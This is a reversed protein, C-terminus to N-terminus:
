FNYKVALTPNVYFKDNKGYKGYSNKGANYAANYGYDNKKNNKGASSNASFANASIAMMSVIIMSKMISSSVNFSKM